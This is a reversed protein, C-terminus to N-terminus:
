VSLVLPNKDPGHMRATKFSFCFFSYLLPDIVLVSKNSACKLIKIKKFIHGMVTVNGPLSEPALNRTQDSKLAKQAGM